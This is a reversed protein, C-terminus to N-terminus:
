LRWDLTLALARALESSKSRGFVLTTEPHRPDTLNRGLLGLALRSDVQYRLSMDATWYAEVGPREPPQYPMAAVYRLHTFLSWRPTFRHSQQLTLMHSPEARAQLEAQPNRGSLDDVDFDLYGYGLLWRDDASPIWQVTLDLGSSDASAKGGPTPGALVYTLAEYDTISAPEPATVRFDRYHQRYLDIDLVWQETLRSRFGSEIATLKEPDIHQGPRLGILIPLNAPESQGAYDVLYTLSRNARSPMQVAQSLALWLTSDPTLSFATRATPLIASGDFRHYELKAGLTLQLKGDAMLIQDQAFAQQILNYQQAPDLQITLSQDFADWNGRLGAGWTFAHNEGLQFRQQWSLDAIRQTEQLLWQYDRHYQEIYLQLQWEHEAARMGTLSVNFYGGRMKVSPNFTLVYPAYPVARMTDYDFAGSFADAMVSLSMSQELSQDFRWNARQLGHQNNQQTSLDDRIQHFYARQYGDNGVGDGLAISGVREKGGVIGSVQVGQMQAATKTVVNIVGNVANSGWLAGGPGRIVEIREISEMPIQQMEWLVGAFLPTFISRGDILVLLKNSFLDRAGRTSIEYQAGNIQAVEMGPVLKLAEPLTVVGSKKLDQATLVFVAAAARSIKEQHKSVSTISLDMLDEIEMAAYHPQVGGLQDDHWAFATSTLSNLLFLVFSIKKM